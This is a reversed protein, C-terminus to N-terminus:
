MPDVSEGSEIHDAELVEYFAEDDGHDAAPVLGSPKPKPTAEPARETEASDGGDGQQTMPLREAKTTHPHDPKCRAPNSRCPKAALSCRSCWISRARRPM